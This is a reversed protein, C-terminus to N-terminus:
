SATRSRAPTRGTSRAGASRTGGPRAPPAIRGRRPRPGQEREDLPRPEGAPAVGLRGAGPASERVADLPGSEGPSDRRDGPRAGGRARRLWTGGGDGRLRRGHPRSAGPHAAARGAAVVAARARTRVSRPQHGDGGEGCAVHFAMCQGMLALRPGPGHMLAFDIQEPTAEGGAVMHLAERWLAEQLRTAIFGPIERALVLPEKGAARYFARAWAVTDPATGRGGAIEVLPLLYPPNFPHGVVTRGPTPCRAQIDTMTLGSTSSAIVVDPPTLEGLTAYLSRKVELDEPASEQVFEAGGVADALDCTIRLRALSAREELGLDELSRWATEVIGRFTREESADHLYSRVDYGRALFFATWGGGIPGGGLSAVTRVEEPRPRAM